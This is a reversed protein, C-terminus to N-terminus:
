RFVKSDDEFSIGLKGNKGKCLIINKVLEEMESYEKGCDLEFDRLKVIDNRPCLRVVNM